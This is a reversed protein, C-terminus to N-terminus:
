KALDRPIPNSTWPGSWGGLAMFEGLHKKKGRQRKMSREANEAATADGPMHPLSLNTEPIQWHKQRALPHVTSAGTGLHRGYAVHTHFIRFMTRMM